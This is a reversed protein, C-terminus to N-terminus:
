FEYRAAVSPAVFLMLPGTLTEAGFSALGDGQAGPRNTTLVTSGDEWTPRSLAALVLIEAGVSVEVHEGLRRGIRLEPALYLSSLSASRAVDVAYLEKKTNTFSGSRADSVSGIMIGVGLRALLPWRTGSRYHASAGATVASMRLTDDVTGPNPAVDGVPQLAADRGKVSRLLFLYGVDVGGGFGSGAQYVGRLVGLFGIPPSLSCAGSCRSVLEGGWLVGLPMATALEIGLRAGESAFLAPDRVLKADVTESGDKKAEIRRRFPVYGDGTVEVLHEGVRVRGEWAGRGLAVGDVTVEARIPTPEVRLRADLEEALLNLSVTQNLTVSAVVPQTGSHREGRLLVSHAGPSIVGDWPTKGVVAADVVVDLSKGSQEAVRLRGGATLAVLEVDVRVTQLGAVVTSGEFPLFADRTVRIAHTGAGVRLPAALPLTGRERGDVVVKAGAVGGELEIGGISGSLASLERKVLEREDGSVDPFDRLLAEYLEEAEAFRSLRRSCVAAHYTNKSTPL